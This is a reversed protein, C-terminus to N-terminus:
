KDKSGAWCHRQHEDLMGVAQMFAHCITTGVFIFGRRKLDRSMADSQPSSARFDSLRLPRRRLTRGQTFSWLLSAFDEGAERIEFLAREDHVPRGWEEDHYRIYLPDEGCWACRRRGDAHRRATARRGADPSPSPGDSASAAATASTHSAQM